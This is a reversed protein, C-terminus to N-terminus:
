LVNREILMQHLRRAKDAASGDLMVCARTPRPYSLRAVFQRRPPPAFSEAAHTELEARNARLMHSLSPYRPQKTGTQITLVAPLLLAIRERRGGELDRVAEIEDKRALATEVAGTACPRGLIAAIMPGVAGQMADESQFGALILDYRRERAYAALCHATVFPDLDDNNRTVLHIGRDAGMGMARRVAVAARPPGVSAIDVKGGAAERLRLAAEVAYLDFENLRYETQEDIALATEPEAIRLRAELAVVQKVCVLINM